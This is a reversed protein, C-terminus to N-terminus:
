KRNRYKDRIDIIKETNETNIIETKVTIKKKPKELINESKIKISKKINQKDEEKNNESELESETESETETDYKKNNKISKNSNYKKDKQELKNFGNIDINKMIEEYDDGLEKRLEDEVSESKSLKKNVSKLENNIKDIEEKTLEDNEILTNIVDDIMKKEKNIKKQEKKYFDKLEESNKPNYELRYRYNQVYEFEKKYQNKKSSSFIVKLEKDHKELIDSLLEYEAELLIKDWDESTVKHVLLENKDKINTNFITDNYYKKYDKNFLEKKIINKYPQNTRSDWWDKVLKNIKNDYQPMIENYAENLEDKSTKNIPIPCIILDTLQKKDIGMEDINRARKIQELKAMNMKNYFSSDRMNLNPNNNLLPNNSFPTNNNTYQNYRNVLNNGFNRNQNMNIYNYYFIFSLVCM